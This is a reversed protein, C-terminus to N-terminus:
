DFSKYSRSTILGLWWVWDRLYEHGGDRARCGNESLRRLGIKKVIFSSGIFVSSSIALVLGINFDQANYVPTVTVPTEILTEM